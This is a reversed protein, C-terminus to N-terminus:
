TVNRHILHFWQASVAAITRGFTTYSIQTIRERKKSESSSLTSERHAKSKGFIFCLFADGEAFNRIKTRNEEDM